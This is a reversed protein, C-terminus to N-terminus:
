TLQALQGEVRLTGEHALAGEARDVGAGRLEGRAGRVVVGAPLAVARALDTTPRALRDHDEARTGVPDPLPDLEVVAADMGRHGHALRSAVRHHDVAVGLRDRRVVVGGIAEVELGEGQLVDKRHDLDLLREAHDDLEAALGRKLEGGRERIRAHGQEPRANLRDVQGLVAPAEPRQELAEAM